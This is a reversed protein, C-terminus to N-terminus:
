REVVEKMPKRDCKFFSELETIHECDDLAFLPCDICDNYHDCIVQRKEEMCLSNFWQEAKTM